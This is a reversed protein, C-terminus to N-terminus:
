VNAAAVLLLRASGLRFPEGGLGAFGEVKGFGARRCLGRIERYAYIRHYGMRREIRGDQVFSFETEMVGAVHDYRNRLLFLIDGYEFWRREQFTPLVVEAVAAGAEIVFRGGPRLARAVAALFRQNEADDMYGFSNGFCCAGDFQSHWPLERIDREEWQVAVGKKVALERALDLFERSLDVGTVDHGRGALEVAHRGQGCPLDLIRARAPSGLTRVLMDVEASTQEATNARTWTQVAIGTFFSRWWEEPRGGPRAHESV